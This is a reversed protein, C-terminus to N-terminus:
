YFINTIYKFINSAFYSITLTQSIKPKKTNFTVRKELTCNRWLYIKSIFFYHLSSCSKTLNWLPLSSFLLPFVPNRIGRWACQTMSYIYLWTKYPLKSCVLYISFNYLLLKGFPFQEEFISQKRLFSSWLRDKNRNWNIYFNFTLIIMRKSTFLLNDPVWLKKSLDIKTWLLFM